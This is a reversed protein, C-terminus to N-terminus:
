YRRTCYNMNYIYFLWYFPGAFLGLILGAIKDSLTSNYFLCIFSALFGLIGAFVWILLLIFRWWFLISTFITETEEKLKTKTEDKLKTKTEDSLTLTDKIKEKLETKTESDTYGEITM